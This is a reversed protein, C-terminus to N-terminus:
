KILYILYIIQEWQQALEWVCLDLVLYDFQKLIVRSKVLLNDLDQECVSQFHLYAAAM